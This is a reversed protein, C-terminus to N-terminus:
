VGIKGDAPVRPVFAIQEHQAAHTPPPTPGVSIWVEEFPLRFIGREANEIEPNTGARRSRGSAERLTDSETFHLTPPTLTARDFGRVFGRIVVVVPERQKLHLLADVGVGVQTDSVYDTLGGTFEVQEFVSQLGEWVWIATARAEQAFVEIEETLDQSNPKFSRVQTEATGANSSRASAKWTKRFTRDHNKTVNLSTNLDFLDPEQTDGGSGTRSNFIITMEYMWHSDANGDNPVSRFGTVHPGDFGNSPQLDAKNVGDLELQIRVTNFKSDVENSLLFFRDAVLAPTTEVVSGELQIVHVISEVSGQQNLSKQASWEFRMHADIILQDSGEGILVRWGM